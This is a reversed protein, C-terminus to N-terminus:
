LLLVNIINIIVFHMAKGEVRFTIILLIWIIDTFIIVAIFIIFMTNNQETLLAALPNKFIILLVSFVISSLLQLMFISSLYSKRRKKDTYFKMLATDMGYRYFTMAFGTAVQVLFCTLVIGGFCYFINVHPPVYKSTIETQRVQICYITTGPVEIQM